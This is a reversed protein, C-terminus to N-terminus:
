SHAARDALQPLYVKLFATLTELGQKVNQAMASLREGTDPHERLYALLKQQDLSGDPRTAGVNVLSDGRADSVTRVALFPLGRRSAAEAIWFSEMEVIEHKKWSHHAAKEAPGWAAEDVTISSGTRARLGISAAADFAAVILRQDSYVSLEDNSHRHSEHDVHTCIVLDGAKLHVALGGAIGVSLVATPSLHDLVAAAAQAAPERGIGTRCVFAGDGLTVAAVGITTHEGGRTWEPCALVEGEMAAFIAIM